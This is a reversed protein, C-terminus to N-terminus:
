KIKFGYCTMQTWPRTFTRGQHRPSLHQSKNVEINRKNPNSINNRCQLFLLSIVVSSIFLCLKSFTFRVDERRPKSLFLLQGIFIVRAHESSLLRPSSGPERRFVVTCRVCQDKQEAAGGLTFTLFRWKSNSEVPLAPQVSRPTANHCPLAPLDSKIM